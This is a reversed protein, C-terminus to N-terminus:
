ERFSITINGMACEASIDRPADNDIDKERALGSYTKEGITVNGAAVEVEYNFSKEEGTLELEINGMACTVEAKERIDGTVELSGMGVDATLKDVSLEDLIIEGAGLEIEVESARMASQWDIEGAGLSLEMDGFTFDAPVYLEIRCTLGDGWTTRRMGRVHLTHDKVYGQYGGASQVKIHFDADGSEKVVIACAGAEIEVDRIEDATFTQETDGEYVPNGSDFNVHEELEYRQGSDLRELGSVIQNELSKPFDDDWYMSKLQAFSISGQIGGATLAMGLGAVILILALIACTKMFKKM